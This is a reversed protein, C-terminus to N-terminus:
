MGRVRALDGVVRSMVQDASYLWDLVVRRQYYDSPLCYKNFFPKSPYSNYCQYQELETGDETYLCLSEISTTVPCGSLCLSIDLGQLPDPFYTYGRSERLAYDCTQGYIDWGRQLKPPDGTYYAWGSLTWLCIFLFLFVLLCPLDRCRDEENSPSQLREASHATPSEHGPASTSAVRGSM